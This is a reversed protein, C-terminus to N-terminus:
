FILAKKKKMQNNFKLPIYIEYKFVHVKYENKKKFAVIYDFPENVNNHDLICVCSYSNVYQILKSKFEIPNNIEYKFETVKM